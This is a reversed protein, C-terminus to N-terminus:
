GSVGNAAAMFNECIAAASSISIAAMAAAKEGGRWGGSKRWVGSINLAM